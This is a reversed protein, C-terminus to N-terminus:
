KPSHPMKVSSNMGPLSTSRCTARSNRCDSPFRSSSSQGKTAEVASSSCTRKQSRALRRSARRTGEGAAKM